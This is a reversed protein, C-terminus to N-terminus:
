WKCCTFSVSSECGISQRRWPLSLWQKYNTYVIHDTVYQNRRSIRKIFAYSTRSVLCVNWLGKLLSYIFRKCM